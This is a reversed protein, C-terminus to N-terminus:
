NSSKAGSKVSLYFLGSIFINMIYKNYQATFPLKSLIPLHFLKRSSVASSEPGVDQRWQTRSGIIIPHRARIPRDATVIHRGGQLDGRPQPLHRQRSTKGRRGGGERRGMTTAGFALWTLRVRRTMKETPQRDDGWAQSENAVTM